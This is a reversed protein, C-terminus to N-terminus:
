AASAPAEVARERVRRGSPRRVDWALGLREMGRILLYGLDLETRRLGIAASSPFAHHNNHFSEGLSVISLLPLNHSHDNTAFRRRGTIHGVSNIAWTVHDAVFIRVLGGWLMGTLLALPRGTVAYAIVGPAAIGAVVLAVFHRSMWRMARERGLDPAYRLPESTLTEDFMWGVHAHWLGKLGQHELHPSHPDGDHDALSHHKRHHSVWTIAPGQASLTGALALLLRVPRVTKFSRHSLLRHYGVSVGVATFFYLGLFLGLETWGVLRNWLLVIAVLVGVPPAITAAIMFNRHAHGDM